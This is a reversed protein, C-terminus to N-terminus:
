NFVHYLLALSVIVMCLWTVLIGIQRFQIPGGSMGVVHSLRALTFAIGLGHIVNVSGELLALAVLGILMGPVYESANGHVRIAKTLREDGGDGLSIREPFRRAVVRSALWILILINVAVYVSAAELGTM